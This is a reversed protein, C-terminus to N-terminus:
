IRLTLSSRLTLYVGPNPSTLVPFLTIEHRSMPDKKSPKPLFWPHYKSSVLSSVLSTKVKKPTSPLDSVKIRDFNNWICHCQAGFLPTAHRPEVCNAENGNKSLRKKCLSWMHGCFVTITELSPCYTSPIGRGTLNCPRFLGEGPMPHDCLLTALM